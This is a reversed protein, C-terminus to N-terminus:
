REMGDGEGTSSSRSGGANGTKGSGLGRLCENEVGAQILAMRPLKRQSLFQGGADVLMWRRDWELGWSTLRAEPLSIGAASKLPYVALRSIHLTM